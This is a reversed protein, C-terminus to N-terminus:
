YMVALLQYNFGCETTTSEGSPPEQGYFVVKKQAGRPKCHIHWCSLEERCATFIGAASSRAAYLSYALRQARRPMCPIHWCSLEERSATFIGAASSRARCATFIGAASSRAAHLSYALRQAGRPMCHIHWDSLEERCATFIGTFLVFIFLLM